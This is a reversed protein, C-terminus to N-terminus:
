TLLGAITSGTFGDGMERKQQRSLKFTKALENVVIM